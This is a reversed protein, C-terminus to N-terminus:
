GGVNDRLHALLTQMPAPLPVEFHLREGTRPQNFGLAYAHLAQGRLNEIDRELQARAPATFAEGAIKRVGGYLPDGVIPHHIYAGHVRIQHTRGTQLKAELLAFTTGFTERRTLETLAHRATHRADVVVAMKKRDSPHRGIPADVRSREWAPVGWVLALYRRSATRSQIQAQLARHAIDNKAVMILGGTDKDLRHVIGPRQEGGIGSLGSVCGLVANVLTGSSAGPAPHVVMGRPKDIVLMDDDEYVITLPIDEAEITTLTPAPRQATVVDGARLRYNSKAQRGNVQVGTGNVGAAEILRQAEARTADPLAATIYVDLRQGVLEGATIAATLSGASPAHGPADASQQFEAEDIDGAEEETDEQTSFRYDDM